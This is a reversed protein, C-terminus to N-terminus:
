DMDIIILGSAHGGEVVTIAEGVQDLPYRATIHPTVLGYEIVGTIKALAEDSRQLAAGGLEIAAAPDAGSIIGAPSTALEAAARLTDGGILDLILDVGDPAVQRLRTLLDDGDPVLTAGTSEVLGRMAESGTGLVTFEHVHGIQAAMLGVGSDIGLILVTQGVQLDIQHTGDYAAVAAVPITAATGFSIEEPKVVADVARVITNQVFSGHGVAVRGLIADGIAFCDVGDGMATVTGAVEHGLWEPLQPNLGASATTWDLPNLMAARVRVGLEGPGPAPLPADILELVRAAAPSTTENTTSM